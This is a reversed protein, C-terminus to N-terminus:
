ILANLQELIPDDNQVAKFFQPPHFQAFKARLLSLTLSNEIRRISSLEIATVNMCGKVYRDFEEKTIGMRSKYKKWIEEPSGVFVNTIESVALLAGVPMTAYIWLRTGMQLRVTRRRLEVTKEGALIKDVYRPKLSIIANNPM